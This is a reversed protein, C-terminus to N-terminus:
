RKFAAAGQAIGTIAGAVTAQYTLGVHTAQPGAIFGSVSGGTIIGGFSRSANDYALGGNLPAAAGGATTVSFPVPVPGPATFSGQLSIGIKTDTSAGGWSVGVQSTNSLTGPANLGSTLTPSTAAILNFTATGSAPINNNPTAAGFVYHASKNESCCGPVVVGASIFRSDTWRGWGLISDNGADKISAFSRFAIDQDTRPQELQVAWSDLGIGPTRSNETSTPTNIAGFELVKLPRAGRRNTYAQVQDDSVTFDSNAKVAVAQTGGMTAPGAAPSAMAFHVDSVLYSTSIFESYGNDFGVSEKILTTKWDTSMGNLDSKASFVAQRLTYINSCGTAFGAAVLVMLLTLLRNM